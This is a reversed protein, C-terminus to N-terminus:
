RPSEQSAQAPRSVPRGIDKVMFVLLKAPVRASANASRVHVDAPGEYFTEGARLTLPQRGALQMVVQGSLVYVFVEADHRHPLSSSGPPYEVTLVLVEKGALEPLARELLTTVAAAPTAAAPAIAGAPLAAAAFALLWRGRRQMGALRMAM